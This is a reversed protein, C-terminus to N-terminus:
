VQGNNRRRPHNNNKKWMVAKHKNCCSLSCYKNTNLRPQFKQKCYPCVKKKLFTKGKNWPTRNCYGETFVRPRSANAVLEIYRCNELTYNGRGDVRDISPRKMLYAKDRFWLFKLDEKTLFNKIGNKTYEGRKHKGVMGCRKGIYCLTKYWPPQRRYWDRQQERLRAKQTPTYHRCNYCKKKEIDKQTTNM